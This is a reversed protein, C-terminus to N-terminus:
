RVLSHVDLLYKRFVIARVLRRREAVVERSEGLEGALHRRQEEQLTAGLDAPISTSMAALERNLAAVDPCEYPGTGVEFV